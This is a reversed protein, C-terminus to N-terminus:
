NKSFQYVHVDESKILGKLNRDKFVMGSPRKTFLPQASGTLKVTTPIQISVQRSANMSTNVVVLYVKNGYFWQGAIVDSFGTNLRTFTGELLAPSLKKIEPAISRVMRWVGPNKDRLSQGDEYYSYFLIGKVENLLAQYTMNYVEQPTPWRQGKWNFTQLNAILPRNQKRVEEKAIRFVSDVESLHNPANKPRNKYPYGIPYHQGGILDAVHSYDRWKRSWGSVSIYTYHKPDIAKVQRHFSLIEESSQRDGADDAIGWGLVSSKDKSDTVIPLHASGRLETLVFIGLRKAEDLFVGYEQINEWFIFATNCGDDAIKRLVDIRQTPNYSSYYFGFPFFPKNDVIINSIPNLKRIGADVVTKSSLINTNKKAFLTLILVFTLISLVVIKRM